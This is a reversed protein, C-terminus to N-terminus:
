RSIKGRDIGVGRRPREATSLSRFFLAFRIPLIPRVFGRGGSRPGILLEGRRGKKSARGEAGGGGGGDDDCGRLGLLLAFCYHIYYYARERERGKSYPGHSVGKRLLRLRMGRRVQPNSRTRQERGKEVTCYNERNKERVTLRKRGSDRGGAGSAPTPPPPPPPPLPTPKESPRLDQKSPPSPLPPPPSLERPLSSSSSSSYYHLRYSLSAQPPPLPLAVHKLHRAHDVIRGDTTPRDSCVVRRRGEKRTREGELTSRSAQRCFLPLLPSPPSYPLM